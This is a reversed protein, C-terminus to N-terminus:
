RGRRRHRPQHAMPARCASMSSVRTGAAFHRFPLQSLLPVSWHLHTRLRAALPTRHPPRRGPPASYAQYRGRERPTVCTPLTTPTIPVIGGRRNGSAHPLSLCPWTPGSSSIISGRPLLRDGASDHRPPGHIDPPKGLAASVLDVVSYCHHGLFPERFRRLRTRHHCPPPSSPRNLASLFM